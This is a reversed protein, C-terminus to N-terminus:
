GGPNQGVLDNFPEARSLCSASFRRSLETWVLGDGVNSLCTFASASQGSSAGVCSRAGRHAPEPSIAFPIGKAALVVQVEM